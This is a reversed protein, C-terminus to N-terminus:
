AKISRVSNRKNKALYLAEDARQIIDDVNDDSTLSESVGASITLKLKLGNSEFSMEEINVRLKNAVAIANDLNTDPLLIAFEEGGWRTVKDSRRFGSKLTNALQKLVEDGVLHGHEDNVRKFYDIDIIILSFYGANRQSNHFEYKVYNTFSRRNLLGTLEYTNAQLSLEEKHSENYKIWKTVGIALLGYGLIFFSKVSLEVIVEQYLFLSDLTLIYLSFYVFAFGISTYYYFGSRVRSYKQTIYILYLTTLLLFLNTFLEFYSINTKSQYFFGNILMLIASSVVVLLFINLQYKDKSNERESTM